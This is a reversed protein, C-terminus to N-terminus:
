RVALVYPLAATAREGQLLPAMSSVFTEVESRYPELGLTAARTAARLARHELRQTARRRAAANEVGLLDLLGGPPDALRVPASPELGALELARDVADSLGGLHDVLGLERAREGGFLRGEAAPEIEAVTAGRGRAVRQLFLDYTSEIAVRMKDRTADDWPTFPSELLARDGATPDAPVSEVTVGLEALTDRVSLKGGMVGISGLISAREAVIETAASAVYCGGSAAMEGISAVVPKHERVRMIENWLLDSALASGGPSDIRLVIAEVAEAEDLERLLRILSRAVIGDSGGLLSGGSLTISGTARLVVVHPTGRGSTGALIRVLEGLSPEPPETGGFYVVRGEVGARALAADRAEHDFGIRDILGLGLAAEPVHPGDEAGMATPERDRGSGIQELWAARLAALTEQLSQRAEPSSRDRTYPEIAGKFQGAQLFDAQISLKELLRKGFLLQAAIGVTDVTGSASLWIEDCGVAALMASSNSYGDAHCVVPLGRDRFAALLRGIESARAFGFRSTGIRVFVGRLEQEERLERLRQVLHTFSRESSVAFLTEEPREPAGRGLDIEALHPDSRSTSPKDPVAESAPRGECGLVAMCLTVLAAARRFTM